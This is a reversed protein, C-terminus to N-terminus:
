VRLGSARLETVLLAGLGRADERTWKGNGTYNVAITVTTTNAASSGGSGGGSRGGGNSAIGAAIQKYTDRSLPLVAEQYRGEGIM